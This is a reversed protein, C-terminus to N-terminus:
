NQATLLAIFVNGDEVPISLVKWQLDAKVLLNRKFKLKNHPVFHIGVLQSDCPRSFYPRVNRNSVIDCVLSSQQVTNIQAIDGKTTLFWSDRANASIKVNVDKHNENQDFNDLEQMRKIVQALPNNSNRVYRKLKQLYNEFPFCSIAHIDKQFYTVDEHLHVLSHVNYVTFTNGYLRECHDVFYAMLNGAYSINENRFDDTKHTMIRLAVVLTLFHEYREQDLIDRVAIFGIYLVFLRFETAKWRKVEELGRPRRAFESSIFPRLGRLNDSIRLQQGRSLRSPRYSFDGKWFMIIRRVVGLCVLHMYDLPFDRVCDIDTTIFPSRVLQHKGLYKMNKFEENTRSPQTTDLFVTRHDIYEGKVKCRECAYYGTHGKIGKALQRAPADCTFCFFKVNFHIGNLNIGDRTLTRYNLIFDEFFVEASSPKEQGCFLGVLFPDRSGEVMALIPWLQVGSSKFLPLGDFNVLLNIISGGTTNKYKKALNEEIGVYIYSGGCKDVANVHRPTSVLGRRDKPLGSLGCENLLSLLENVTARTCQNRVAWAGLGEQLKGIQIDSSDHYSSVSEESSSFQGENCSGEEWSSDSSLPFDYDSENNDRYAVSPEEVSTVERQYELANSYSVNNSEILREETSRLQRYNSWRSM